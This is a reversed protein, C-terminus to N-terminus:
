YKILLSTDTKKDYFLKLIFVGKSLNLKKSNINIKHEGEAYVEDAILIERGLLDTITLRIKQKCSVYFSISTNENFPNPYVRAVQDNDQEAVSTTTNVTVGDSSCITQLGAGNVTKISFYYTQGDTLTLGSRTVSTNLANDTWSVIDTAGQSTGIAYWYKSIGSNVDTSAPWNASLTNLSSTTSIDSGTGDNVPACLPPSWDVNINYYDIASLNGAADNVISKVKACFTAPDPNQFRIDKAPDAGVTVTVSPYRSRYVKIEGIYVKSHGTRFSFHNATTTLPNPDTWVGLLINDRYVSIKGTIRDHIVKINYWQGFNTVVNNIVFMQSFVDNEVRYFELKSTEQRFFIFYSNGRNSLSANDCYFHLGFRHQNTGSTAPDIKVNFDYLYRNSLGQNLAAYINTNNVSSDTQILYGNNVVWTGGAAPVSWVSSVYSDFNDGFFGRSANAHWENGDFELVQYFRKEIGSGGANDTDTFNATFDQTQWTGTVSASTTPAVIDPQVSTWTASWGSATTACDSRWEIFLAGGTTTITTPAVTNYRGILPAFENTGDYIYLFDWNAEVNFSSFTLTISSAGGAPQILWFKREDNSYNAGSGGTDYFSGTASTYNIVPTTNNMLKYYYDWNWNVGPDTHTQNPYHQHGRIKTCATEGGLDHLGDDLQTGDDLTERFFTRIPKIGYAACIDRSLAASSQYMAETYWQPDDVYGEHEYGITYPNATGAHWAKDAELVMQCLQGNSSKVVYQTSVQSSTNQFWSICGAYSGQVTHMVLASIATGNRSSYNPSAVWNCNAFNYDPCVAKTALSKYRCGNDNEISEEAFFLRTSNFIKLNNEGFLNSLDFSYKPFHYKAQNVPNNLFVFVDFIQSNLAFDNGIKNDKVPIQSLRVLTNYIKQSLQRNTDPLSMHYQFASAYALINKRPNNIIEQVPISSLASVTNLNERFYNKGDLVLGMVGYSAPIGTCGPEEVQPDVHRIRTNTYAVAELVGAPVAPNAQYAEEFYTRYPYNNESQQAFAAQLPTLLLTLLLFKKM